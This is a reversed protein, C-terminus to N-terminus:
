CKWIWCLQFLFATVKEGIQVNCFKVCRVKMDGLLQLSQVQGPPFLHFYTPYSPDKNTQLVWGDADCQIRSFFMHILQIIRRKQIYKQYDISNRWFSLNMLDSLLEKLPSGWWQDLYVRCYFLLKDIHLEYWTFNILSYKKRVQYSGSRSVYSQAPDIIVDFARDTGNGFLIM